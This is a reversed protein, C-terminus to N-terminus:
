AFGSPGLWACWGAISSQTEGATWNPDAALQSKSGLGPQVTLNISARDAVSNYVGTKKSLISTMELFGTEPWSGSPRCDPNMTVQM